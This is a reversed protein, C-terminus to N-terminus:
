RSSGSGYQKAQRISPMGKPQVVQRPMGKIAWPESADEAAGDEPAPGGDAPPAVPSAKEMTVEPDFDVDGNLYLWRGDERVFKSRERFDASAADSAGHLKM